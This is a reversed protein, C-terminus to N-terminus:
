PESIREEEPLEDVQIHLAERTEPEQVKREAQRRELDQLARELGRDLHAEYRISHAFDYIPHENFVQRDLHLASRLRWLYGAIRQVLLCELVGVPAYEEELQSILRNYPGCDEDLVTVALSFIGHKLANRSSYRKGRPTKPGTSKKANERNAQTRAQSPSQQTTAVSPEDHDATVKAESAKAQSPTRPEQNSEQNAQTKADVQHHPIFLLESEKPM